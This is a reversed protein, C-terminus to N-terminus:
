RVPGLERQIQELRSQYTLQDAHHAMRGEWSLVRSRLFHGPSNSIILWGAVLSFTAIQSWLESFRGRADYYILALAAAAFSAV